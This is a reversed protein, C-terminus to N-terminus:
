ASFILVMSFAALTVISDIQGLSNNTTSNITTMVIANIAAIILQFVSHTKIRLDKVVLLTGTRRLEEKGGPHAISFNIYSWGTQTHLNLRSHNWWFDVARVAEARSIVGHHDAHQKDHAKIANNARARVPQLMLSRILLTPLEAATAGAAAGSAPAAGTTSALSSFFSSFFSSDSDSSSSM